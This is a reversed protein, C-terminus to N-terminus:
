RTRLVPAAERRRTVGLGDGLADTETDGAAEGDGTADAEGEADAFADGDALGDGAALAEADGPAEGDALADGPSLAEGDGLAEGAGVVGVLLEGSPMRPESPSIRNRNKTAGGGTAAANM